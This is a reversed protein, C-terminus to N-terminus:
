DAAPYFRAGDEAVGLLSELKFTVAVKDSVTPVM